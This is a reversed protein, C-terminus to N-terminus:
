VNNNRFKKALRQYVKYVVDDANQYFTESCVRWWERGPEPHWILKEYQDKADQVFDGKPCDTPPLSVVWEWFERRDSPDTANDQNKRPERVHYNMKQKGIAAMRAHDSVELKGGLMLQAVCFATDSIYCRENTPSLKRHHAEAEHKRNYVSFLRMEHEGSLYFQSLFEKARNIQDPFDARDLMRKDEDTLLPVQIVFKEIDM